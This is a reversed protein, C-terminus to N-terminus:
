GYVLAPEGRRAHRHKVVLFGPWLICATLGIRGVICNYCFIVSADRQQELAAAARTRDWRCWRFAEAGDLGSLLAAVLDGCEM